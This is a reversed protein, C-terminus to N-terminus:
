QQTVPHIILTSVEDMIMFSFIRNMSSDKILNVHSLSIVIVYELEFDFEQIITRNAM